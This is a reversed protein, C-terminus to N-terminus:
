YHGRVGLAEGDQDRPRKWVVEGVARDATPALGAHRAVAASVAHDAHILAIIASVEHEALWSVLSRSPRCAIM